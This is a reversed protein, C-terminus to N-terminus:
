GRVRIEHVYQDFVERPIRLVRYGQKLRTESSGLDIVGKRKAFKRRITVPSVRLIDAAEEPTLWESPQSPSKLKTM